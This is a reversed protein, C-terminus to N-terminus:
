SDPFGVIKNARLELEGIQGQEATVKIKSDNLSVLLDTVLGITGGDAKEKGQSTIQSHTNLLVTPATIVVQGARGDEGADTSIFSDKHMFLIDTIKLDIDGGIGLPATADLSGGNDLLITDAEIWLKGSDGIGDNRVRIAGQDSLRLFPTTIMITGSDGIAVDPLGFVVRAEQNMLFTGANIASRRFSGAIGGRVEVWETATIDINGAEGTGSNDATVQAGDQILLKGTKIKIKGAKGSGVNSAGLSSDAEVLPRYGTIEISDAQVFLRGASGPGLNAANIGAGERVELKPTSLQINGGHGSNFAFTVITSYTQLNHPAFGTLNMAQSADIQINGGTATGFSRTMVTAGDRLNFQSTTIFANNGSGTGLADSVIGSSIAREAEDPNTDSAHFAETAQIRINGAPQSGWNQGLLLSGETLNVQAGVIQLSGAASDLSGSIDALSKHTLNIQGLDQSLNALYDTDVQFGVNPIIKKLGIKKVGIKKVGIDINQSKGLAALTIEGSEATLLGGTLDIDSGVLALTHGPQVQLHTPTTTRDIAAFSGGDLQHGPGKVQIAGPNSGFHLSLTPNSSRPFQEFESQNEELQSIGDQSFQCYEATAAIFSGGTQLHATPGFQIGRPNLLFLNASGNTQITGNIVSTTNGTVQIFINQINTANDISISEGPPISFEDFHYLLSQSLLDSQHISAHVQNPFNYEWDLNEGDMYEGYLPIAQVQGFVYFHWTSVMLVILYGLRQFVFLM